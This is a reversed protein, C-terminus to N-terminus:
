VPPPKVYDCEGNEQKVCDKCLQDKHSGITKVETYVHMHNSHGKEAFVDNCKDIVYKCNFLITKAGHKILLKALELSREKNFEDTDMSCYLNSDLDFEKGGRHSDPKRNPFAKDDYRSIDGIQLKTNGTEKWERAINKILNLTDETGWNDIMVDNEYEWLYRGYDSSPPLQFFVLDTTTKLGPRKFNPNEVSEKIKKATEEDVEGSEELKHEKQFTIVAGRLEKEFVGNASMGDKSNPDSIWYGLKVLDNQLEKVYGGTEEHIKGEWIRESDKDGIRLHYGGYPRITVQSIQGTKGMKSFKYKPFEIEVKGPPVNEEKAQGKSDLRGKKSTSDPFHLIYEENPVPKGSANLLNIGIWDKFELLGSEWREGFIQGEFEITFYFKPPNYHKDYKQLEEETCIEETDGYYDYKWFLEIKKNGVSPHFKTVIEHCDNRGYEWIKITAETGDPVGKVDASLQVEDGRRVERESWKLTTVVITPIVPIKNSKTRLGHKPLNVEFYVQDNLEIDEPIPFSGVYRSRRVEGEWRGLKKGKESKGVVEIPAGDGVDFTLVEFGVNQGAPARQKKWVALQIESELVVKHKVDTSKEFKPEM